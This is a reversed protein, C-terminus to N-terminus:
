IKERTELSSHIRTLYETIEDRSISMAQDNLYSDLQSAKSGYIDELSVNEDHVNTDIYSFFPDREALEEWATSDQAIHLRTVIVNSRSDNIAIRVMEPDLSLDSGPLELIIRALVLQSHENNLRTQVENIIDEPSLANTISFTHSVYRVHDCEHFTSTAQGHPEDITVLVCGKPEQESGKASLGQANGSYAVLPHENLISRKHIHGLAFYDYGHGALEAASTPAYNSHEADGNANTHLVGVNFARDMRTPFQSALNRSEDSTAYSVGHVALTGSNTEVTFTEPHQSGFVHIKDPWSSKMENIAGLPDHNGFAVFVDIDNDALRQLFQSFRARARLNSSTGEKKDFVDGAIVVADVDHEMALEAISDLALLPADRLLALESASVEDHDRTMVSDGLVADVHLDACHLVTIAM